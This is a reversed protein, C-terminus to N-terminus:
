LGDQTDQDSGISRSKPPLSKEHREAVAQPLKFLIAFVRRSNPHATASFGTLFVHAPWRYEALRRSPLISILLILDFRVGPFITILIIIEWRYEEKISM